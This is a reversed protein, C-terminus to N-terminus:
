DAVHQFVRCILSGRCEPLGSNTNTSRLAAHPRRMANRSASGSEFNMPWVTELMSVRMKPMRSAASAASSDTVRLVTNAFTLAPDETGDETKGAALDKKADEVQEYGKTYDKEADRRAATSDVPAEQGQSM